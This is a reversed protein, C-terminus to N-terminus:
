EGRIKRALTDVLEAVVYIPWLFWVVIYGIDSKSEGSSVRLLWYVSTFLYGALLYATFLIMGSIISM